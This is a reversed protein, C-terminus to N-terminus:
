LISELNHELESKTEWHGHLAAQMRNMKTNLARHEQRTKRLINKLRTEDDTSDDPINAITSSVDDLILPLSVGYTTNDKELRGIEWKITNEVLPMLDIWGNEIIEEILICTAGAEQEFIQCADNLKMENRNLKAVQKSSLLKGKSEAKEAKHRLVAVKNEYHVVDQELRKHLAMSKDVKSVAATEWEQVYSLIEKQYQEEGTREKVSAIQNISVLSPAKDATVTNVQDADLEKAVHDHIPTEKSM